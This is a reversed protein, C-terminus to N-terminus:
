DHPRRARTKGAHAPILGGTTCSWSSFMRKGRMRPSSGTVNATDLAILLNEGCARPHAPGASGSRSTVRTKGAHAPILGRDRLRHRLERLKGRMRPSSGGLPVYPALLPRNEGCARPHAAKIAEPIYAGLTKGAHAPILRKPCRLIVPRSRKGRM